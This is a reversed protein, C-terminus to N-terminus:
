WANQSNSQNKPINNLHFKPYHRIIIGTRQRTPAYEPNRTKGGDDALWLVGHFHNPMVIFQDSEVNQFHSPINEWHFDTIKGFDNLIMKGNQIEGFLCEHNKRL